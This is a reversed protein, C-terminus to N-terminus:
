TPGGHSGNPEGDDRRRSGAIFLRWAFSAFFGAVIVIVTIVALLDDFQPQDM